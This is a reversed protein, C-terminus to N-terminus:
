RTLNLYLNDTLVAYPNVTILDASDFTNKGNAYAPHWGPKTARVKVTQGSGTPVPDLRYHGSADTVTRALVAGTDPDLVAVVSGPLPQSNGLVQGTIIAAPHLDMYLTMSPGWDQALHQGPYLPYVAATDWSSAGSAWSPMWGSASARVKIRVAPLGGITYKGGDTTTYRRLVRGTDANFVTIRVHNLVPDFNGLVEGSIVAEAYLVQEGPLNLTKGPHLWYVTASAFTAKGSSWTAVFGAKATRVKVPIPPLSRITFGGLADSVGTGVVEGTWASYVKVTADALAGDMGSNPDDNIGLVSGRITATTTGAVASMPITMGLVTLCAAVLAALIRVVAAARVGPQVVRQQAM